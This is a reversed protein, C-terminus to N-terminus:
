SGVVVCGCIWGAVIFPRHQQAIRRDMRVEWHRKRYRYMPTYWLRRSTPKLRRNKLQSGHADGGWGGQHIVTGHQIELTGVHNYCHMM